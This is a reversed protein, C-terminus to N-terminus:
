TTCTGERFCQIGTTLKYLSTLIGTKQSFTEGAEASRSSNSGYGLTGTRDTRDLRDLAGVLHCIQM